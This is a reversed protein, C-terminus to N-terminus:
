LEHDFAFTLQVPLEVFTFQLPEALLLPKPVGACSTDNWTVPAVNERKSGSPRTATTLQSLLNASRKAPGRPVTSAAPHWEYVINLGLKLPLIGLESPQHADVALREFRLRVPNDGDKILLRIWV